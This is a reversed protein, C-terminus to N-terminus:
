LGIATLGVNDALMRRIGAVEGVAPITMAPHDVLSLLRLVSGFRLHPRLDLVADAHDLPHEAKGLQAIAAQVLVRVTQEHGAGQRVQEYRPTPQQPGSLPVRDAADVFGLWSVAFGVM